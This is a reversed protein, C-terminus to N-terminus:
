ILAALVGGFILPWVAILIGLIGVIIASTKQQQKGTIVGITAFTIAVLSLILLATSAFAYLNFFFLVVLSVIALLLGNISFNIPNM